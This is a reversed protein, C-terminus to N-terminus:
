QKKAANEYEWDPVEPHLLRFLRATDGHTNQGELEPALVGAEAGNWSVTGWHIGKVVNADKLTLYGCHKKIAGEDNHIKRQFHRCSLKHVVDSGEENLPYNDLLKPGTAEVPGENFQRKLEALDLLGSWYENFKPGAPSAMLSNQFEEHDYASQILSVKGTLLDSYFNARPEYDLDAYIGGMEKLICYRSLDSKYIEKTYTTFLTYHESCSDRFFRDIAADTWFRYMYEPQPFHKQWSEYSVRWVPNPWQSGPQTLDEKFMFHVIKPVTEDDEPTMAPIGPTQKELPVDAEVRIAPPTENWRVVPKTQGDSEVEYTARVQRESDDKRKTSRGAGFFKSADKRKSAAHEDSRPSAATATWPLVVCVLLLYM